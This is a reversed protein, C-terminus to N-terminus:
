RWDKEEMLAGRVTSVRVRRWCTRVWSSPAEVSAERASLGMAMTEAGVDAVDAGGVVLGGDGGACGAADGVGGGALAEDAAEGFEEGGAVAAEEAVGGGREGEAEVGGGVEVGAGDVLGEGGGGGGGEGGVAVLEDGGRAEADDALDSRGGGDV